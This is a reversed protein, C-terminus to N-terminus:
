LCAPLGLSFGTIFLYDILISVDGITIDDPGATAAGTQNLDAEFLCDVVAPSGSIFLMDIITSVDGITPEDGGVNNADGVRGVCCTTIEFTYLTEDQLGIDDSVQATFSISGSHASWGTLLGDTGLALGTGALDNFKDSWLPTGVVNEAELQYSVAQGLESNPITETTIALAGQCRYAVVTFADLGAEVVSGDGLDGADFRLQVTSSPTVFDQVLFSHEIWGGFAQDVPGASDCAVWDGGNSIYIRLVDTGAASGRDNSYWRAYSIRGSGMSLDVNPSMLITTGGDIDIDYGNGTVFCAGSGDYDTPPDGRSGGNGVPVGREWDGEALTGVVSWGADSEFNDAFVTTTEAAVPAWNPTEPAPDIFITGGSEYISFYYEVRTACGIAPMTAEYIDLGIATLPVGQYDGGDISYHLWGTGPATTGGWIGTVRIQFTTATEPSLWEPLGSPYDFALLPEPMSAVYATALSAKVVKAMYDFNQYTTSDRYSHYVNSFIYEAAFTVPIGHQTFPYHDSSGSSGGYIGEVGLLSDALHFWLEAYSRDQGYLLEVQNDNEYHAIMDMNLMYIINEGRLAAQDAYYWSGHLGYEEADFTAFVITVDTTVDKLLRALELVGATGSGNDDAAPSGTVGDHHAGVVVHVDPYTSGLKTAVVNFMATSGNASYPFPDFFLSDYGFSAFKAHVWDRAAINSATGAPRGDFAQLQLVYSELSDADVGAILTQLDDLDASRVALSPGPETFEITPSFSPLDFLNSAEVSAKLEVAGREFIRIGDQVFVPDFRMSNLKDRRGDMLLQSRSLDGAVFQYSLGSQALAEIEASELIVLYGDSLRIIPDTRLTNLREVDQYSQVRIKYLDGGWILTPLFIMFAATLFVIKKM